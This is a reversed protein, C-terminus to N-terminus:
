KINLGTGEVPTVFEEWVTVPFGTMDKEGINGYEEPAIVYAWTGMTESFVSSIITGLCWEGMDGIRAVVRQKDTFKRERYNPGCKADDAIVANRASEAMQENQLKLADTLKQLQATKYLRNAELESGVVNVYMKVTVTPLENLNDVLTLDTILGLKDGNPSLLYTEGNAVFLTVANPNFQKFTKAPM